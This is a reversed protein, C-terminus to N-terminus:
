FIGNMYVNKFRLTYEFPTLNLTRCMLAAGELVKTGVEIIHHPKTIELNGKAVQVPINLKHFLDIKGTDVGTPGAPLYVDCPAIIGAKAPMAIVDSEIDKRLENYGDNTFILGVNLKIYPILSKLEPKYCVGERQALYPDNKQPKTTCWGLAKHILSNKGVIIKGSFKGGRLKARASQIQKTSVNDLNVVIVYTYQEFCDCLNKVIRIKRDPIASM